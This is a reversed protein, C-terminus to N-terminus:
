TKDIKKIVFLTLHGGLYLKEELLAGPHDNLLAKIDHVPHRPIKAILAAVLFTPIRLFNFIYHKFRSEPKSETVLLLLGDNKL